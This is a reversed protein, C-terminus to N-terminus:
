KQVPFANKLDKKLITVTTDEQVMRGYLSYAPNSLWLKSFDYHYSFMGEKHKYPTKYPHEAYFDYVILYGGDQLVRDGELTIKFYDEPDTLYLCWGYILLDFQDASYRLNDATGAWVQVLSAGRKSAYAPDYGEVHCQFKSELVALRAGDACGIELVREPVISYKGMAELVPDGNADYRGANRKMWAEGEGHLFELSQKM